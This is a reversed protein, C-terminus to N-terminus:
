NRPKALPGQIIRDLAELGYLRVISDLTDMMYDAASQRAQDTGAREMEVTAARIAESMQGLTRRRM